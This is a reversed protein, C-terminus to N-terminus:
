AVCCVFEYVKYSFVIMTYLLTMYCCVFEYVEFSFSDNHLAFDYLMAFVSM